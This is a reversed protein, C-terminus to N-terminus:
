INLFEYENIENTLIGCLILRKQAEDGIVQVGVAKRANIDIGYESLAFTLTRLDRQITNESVGLSVALNFIKMPEISLLLLCVVASQRQKSTLEIGANQSNMEVQLADLNEKSGVLFYRGETSEISLGHGVLYLKLESFERYVTRKSIVLSDEIMAMTVGESYMSLKQLIKKQRESLLIM